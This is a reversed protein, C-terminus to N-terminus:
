QLISMKNSLIFHVSENHDTVKQLTEMNAFVINKETQTTAHKSQKFTRTTKSAAIVSNSIGFGLAQMLFSLVTWMCVFVNKKM